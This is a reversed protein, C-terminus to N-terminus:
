ADANVLPANVPVVIQGDCVPGLMSAFTLLDHCNFFTEAHFEFATYNDDMLHFTFDAVPGGRRMMAHRDVQQLLQDATASTFRENFAKSPVFHRWRNVQDAPQRKWIPTSVLLFMPHHHSHQVYRRITTAWSKDYRKKLADISAWERRTDLAEKTFTSGCFMLGSAGYNAEDELMEQFDPELTQATDGLFYERHWPLIRHVSDHFSAWEKKPPPLSEDVLIKDEDPLWVAALKIKRLVRILEHGRVRVRHWFQQLLTPDTLDYFGRHLELHELIPDIHVPPERLGAEKLIREVHKDIHSQTAKDM